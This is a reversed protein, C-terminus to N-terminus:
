FFPQEDEYQIAESHRCDPSITLERKPNFETIQNILKGIGPSHLIYHIKNTPNRAAMKGSTELKGKHLELQNM